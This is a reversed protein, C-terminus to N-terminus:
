RICISKKIANQKKLIYEKDKKDKKITMDQWIMIKNDDSYTTKLSKTENDTLGYFIQFIRFVVANQFLIKKLPM